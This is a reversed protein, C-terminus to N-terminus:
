RKDYKKRFNEGVYGVYESFRPLLERASECSSLRHTIAAPTTYTAKHMPVTKDAFAPHHQLLHDMDHLHTNIATIEIQKWISFVALLSEDCYCPESLWFDLLQTFDHDSLHKTPLAHLSSNGWWKLNKIGSVLNNIGLEKKLRGVVDKDPNYNLHPMLRSFCEWPDGGPALLLGSITELPKFSGGEGVAFLDADLGCVVDYKQLEKDLWFQTKVSTDFKNDARVWEPHIDRLYPYEIVKVRPFPAFLFDLLPTLNGTCYVRIDYKDIDTAAYLSLIALYSSYAYVPHYLAAQTFVIKNSAGSDPLLYPPVYIRETASWFIQKPFEGLNSLRMRM